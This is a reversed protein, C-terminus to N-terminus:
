RIIDRLVGFGAPVGRLSKQEVASCIFQKAPNGFWDPFRQWSVGTIEQGPKQGRSENV